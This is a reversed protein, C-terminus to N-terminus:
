KTIEPGHVLPLTRRAFLLNKLQKALLSIVYRHTINHLRQLTYVTTIAISMTILSM